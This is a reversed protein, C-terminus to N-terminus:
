STTSAKLNRIFDPVFDKINAKECEEELLFEKLEKNPNKLLIRTDRETSALTSNLYQTPVIQISHSNIKSTGKQIGDIKIYEPNLLYYINVQRKHNRIIQILRLNELIKLYKNVTNRKGIGSLKIIQEYSPYCMQTKNNAHRALVSYIAIGQPKLIPAFQELIENDILFRTNKKRPRINAPVRIHNPLKMKTLLFIWTDSPLNTTRGTRLYISM